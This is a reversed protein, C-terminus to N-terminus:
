LDSSHAVVQWDDPTFNLKYEGLEHQMTENCRGLDALM